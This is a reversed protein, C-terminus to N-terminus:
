HQYRNNHPQYFILRDFIIGTLSDLDAPNTGNYGPHKPQPVPFEFLYFVVEGIQFPWVKLNLFM